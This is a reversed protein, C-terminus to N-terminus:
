PYEDNNDSVSGSDTDGRSFEQKLPHKDNNDNVTGSDTVNRQL